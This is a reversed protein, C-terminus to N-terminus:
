SCFDLRRQRAYVMRSMRPISDDDRSSCLIDPMPLTSFSISKRPVKFAVKEQFYMVEDAFLLPLADEADIGYLLKFGRTMLRLSDRPYSQDRSADYVILAAERLGLPHANLDGKREISEAAAAEDAQLNLGASLASAWIPRLPRVKQAENVLTPDQHERQFRRTREELRRLLDKTKEKEDLLKKVSQNLSLIEKELDVQAVEAAHNTRTSSKLSERFKALSGHGEVTINPERYFSENANDSSLPQEKDGTRM